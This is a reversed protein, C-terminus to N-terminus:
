VNLVPAFIEMALYASPGSKGDALVDFSRPAPSTAFYVACGSALQAQQLLQLFHFSSNFADQLPMIMAIHAVAGAILVCRNSAASEQAHKLLVSLARRSYALFDPPSVCRAAGPTDGCFLSFNYSIGKFGIALPHHLLLHEFNNVFGKREEWLDPFAFSLMDYLLIREHSHGLLLLTM